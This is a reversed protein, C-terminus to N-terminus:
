LESHASYARLSTTSLLSPSQSSKTSCPLQTSSNDIQIECVSAKHGLSVKDMPILVTLGLTGGMNRYKTEAARFVKVYFTAFRDSVAQVLACPVRIGHEYRTM